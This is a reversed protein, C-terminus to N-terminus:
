TSGINVLADIGDYVDTFRTTLASCGLRVIDPPRFDAVVHSEAALRPVVTRADPHVVAVHGGRRAPDRPTPTPLGAQACLDLGFRTLASTKAAVAPMGAHATLAVGQEAGVLSLVPPTGILLRRADGYPRYPTDMEFQDRHSWWGHIPQRLDGHLDRAVYSFAPAGPGGNLFKYTCGVALQAGAAHLDVEIAGAAHCLDWIVIGGAHHVETTFGALDAVAATRYDVLSRIVVGVDDLRIGDHLPRVTWGLSRAVAEAVYRDSPFEDPAVAIIPRDPRLAAAAHVLQFLNVSTSDHVVVEGARAGILPALADGIRSPLGLWDDWGGILTGAWEETAVAAIRTLAAKPARGLSNGDLYVLSPDPILFRERFSALPDARDLAVADARTIM